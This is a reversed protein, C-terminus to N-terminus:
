CSSLRRMDWLPPRMLAAHGSADSGFAACGDIYYSNVLAGADLAKRVAKVDESWVARILANDKFIQELPRKDKFVDKAMGKIIDISGEDYGDLPNKQQALASPGVVLLALVARTLVSQM